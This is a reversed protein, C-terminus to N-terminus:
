DLPIEGICLKAQEQYQQYLPSRRDFEGSRMLFARAQENRSHAKGMQAIVIEPERAHQAELLHGRAMELSAAARLGMEEFHRANSMADVLHALCFKASSLRERGVTTLSDYEDVTGLLARAERISFLFDPDEETADPPGIINRHSGMDILMRLASRPQDNALHIDVQIGKLRRVYAHAREGYLERYRAIVGDVSHQLGGIDESRGSGVTEWFNTRLMFDALLIKSGESRKDVVLPFRQTIERVRDALRLGASIRGNEFAQIGVDVAAILYDLAEGANLASKKLNSTADGHDVFPKQELFSIALPLKGLANAEMALASQVKVIAARPTDPLEKLRTHWEQALSFAEENKGKMRLLYAGIAVSNAVWQAAESYGREKVLPSQPHQRLSFMEKWADFASSLSNLTADLLEASEPNGRPTQQYARYSTQALRFEITAFEELRNQLPLHASGQQVLKTRLREIDLLLWRKTEAALNNQEDISYRPTRGSIRAKENQGERLEHLLYLARGRGRGFTEQTEHLQILAQLALAQDIENRTGEFFAAARELMRITEKPSSNPARSELVLRRFLRSAGEVDAAESRWSAGDYLARMRLFHLNRNFESCLIDVIEADVGQRNIPAGHVDREQDKSQLLRDLTALSESLSQEAESALGISKFARAALLTSEIYREDELGFARGAFNCLTQSTDIAEHARAEVKMSDLLCQKLNQWREHLVSHNGRFDSFALEGTIGLSKVDGPSAPRISRNLRGFPQPLPQHGTYPSVQQAREWFSGDKGFNQSDSLDMSRSAGGPSYWLGLKFIM